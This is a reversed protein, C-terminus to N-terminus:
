GLLGTQGSEESPGEKLSNLVEEWNQIIQSSVSPISLEKMWTLLTSCSLGWYHVGSVVIVAQNLEM